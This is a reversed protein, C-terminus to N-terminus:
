LEQLANVIEQNRTISASHMFCMKHTHIHKKKRHWSCVYNRPSFSRNWRIYHYHLIYECSYPNDAIQLQLLLVNSILKRQRKNVRESQCCYVREWLCVYECARMCFMHNMVRHPPIFFCIHGREINKNCTSVTSTAMAQWHSTCTFFGSIM